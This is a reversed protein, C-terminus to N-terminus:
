RWRAYSRSTNWRNVAGMCRHLGSARGSTVDREGVRGPLQSSIYENAKVAFVILGAQRLVVQRLGMEGQHYTGRPLLPSGAGPRPSRGVACSSCLRASTPHCRISDRVPCPKRLREIACLEIPECRSSLRRRDRRVGGWRADWSTRSTSQRRGSCAVPPGTSGRATGSYLGCSCSRLRVVLFGLLLLAARVARGGADTSDLWGPKVAPTYRAAQAEYVRM